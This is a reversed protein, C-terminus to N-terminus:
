AHIIMKNRQVFNNCAFYDYHHGDDNNDNNDDRQLIICDGNIDPQTIM